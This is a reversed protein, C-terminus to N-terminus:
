VLWNQTQLEGRISQNMPWKMRFGNRAPNLQTASNRQAASKFVGARECGM